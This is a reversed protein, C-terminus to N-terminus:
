FYLVNSKNYYNLIKLVPNLFSRQFVILFSTNIKEVNKNMVVNVTTQVLFLGDADPM